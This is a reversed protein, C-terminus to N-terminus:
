RGTEKRLSQLVRAPVGGVISYPPVNKTVVSGAAVISGTGIRVGKLIIVRCGIWVSDEIVVPLNRNDIGPVFHQDTDMIVVDWAIMCHRGIDVSTHAVVLTNRNLYTGQGIRLVAGAGVELRVGSYFQCNETYIEGGENIVKVLPFGGSAVTIGSRTFKRGVWLGLLHETVSYRRLRSVIREPLPAQRNEAHM